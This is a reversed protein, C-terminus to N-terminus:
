RGIGTNLSWGRRITVSRFSPAMRLRLRGAIIIYILTMDTPMPTLHRAHPRRSMNDLVDNWSAMLCRAGSLVVRRGLRACILASSCYDNSIACSSKVRLRRLAMTKEQVTTKLKKKFQIRCLLEKLANVSNTPRCSPCGAQSFSPTPKNTTIIQSSSQVDQLELLVVVETVRLELLIATELISVEPVPKDCKPM